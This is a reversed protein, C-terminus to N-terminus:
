IEGGGIVRETSSLECEDPPNGVGDARRVENDQVMRVDMMMIM